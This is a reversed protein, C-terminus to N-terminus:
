PLELVRVVEVTINGGREVRYEGRYRGPPFGGAPRKRAASRDTTSRSAFSRPITAGFPRGPDTM